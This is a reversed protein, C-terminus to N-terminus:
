NKIHQALFTLSRSWALAADDEDYRSGTPNAFAHDATYWHAELLDAKGAGSLKAQFAGIMDENISRDLTGFHGLLPTSLNSLQNPQADMRGYYIVSADPNHNLGAQLSWGGGFCWGLTAVKGNGQERAWKVWAALTQNAQTEEVARVLAMAEDRNGAVGGQYLDVALARYGQEALENAMAKIQDNLGWWEHILLVTPANDPEKPLALHGSVTGGASEITVTSGKHAAAQALLPDALVYAIPLAAVGKIFQRRKHEPTKPGQPQTSCPSIECM